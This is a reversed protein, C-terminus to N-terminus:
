TRHRAHHQPHREVLTPTLEVRRRNGFLHPRKVRCARNIVGATPVILTGAVEVTQVDVETRKPHLIGPGGVTARERQGFVASVALRQRAVGPTRASEAVLLEAGFFLELDGENAQM